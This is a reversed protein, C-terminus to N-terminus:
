DRNFRDVVCRGYPLGTEQCFDVWRSPWFIRTSKGVEICEMSLGDVVRNTGIAYFTDKDLWCGRRMSGEDVRQLVWNNERPQNFADYYASNTATVMEMELQTPSLRAPENRLPQAASQQVCQVFIAIALILTTAPGNFM